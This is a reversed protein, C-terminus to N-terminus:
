NGSEKWVDMNVNLAQSSGLVSKRWSVFRMVVDDLTFKEVIVLGVSDDINLRM